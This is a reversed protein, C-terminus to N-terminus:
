CKRDRIINLHVLYSIFNVGAGLFIVPLSAEGTLEHLDATVGIM